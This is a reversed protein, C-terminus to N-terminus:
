RFLEQYIMMCELQANLSGLGSNMLDLMPNDFLQHTFAKNPDHHNLLFISAYYDNQRMPPLCGVLDFEFTAPSSM